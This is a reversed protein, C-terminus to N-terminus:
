APIPVIAVIRRTQKEVIVFQKPLLLYQDAMYGSLADALQIPLDRLEVKKPVAAGVTVTFDVDKVQEQRHQAAFDGVTARQTETLSLKNSATATIEQARGVTAPTTSNADARAPPLTNKGAASQGETQSSRPATAPTPASPAQVGPLWPWFTLGVAIVVAAIVGGIMLRRTGRREEQRSLEEPM